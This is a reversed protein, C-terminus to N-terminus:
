FLFTFVILHSNRLIFFPFNVLITETIVTVNTEQTYTLGQKKVLCKDEEAQIYKQTLGLHHTWKWSVGFSESYHKRISSFNKEQLQM